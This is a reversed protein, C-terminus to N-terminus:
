ERAGKEKLYEKLRQRYNCHFIELWDVLSYKDVFHDQCKIQWEMTYRMNKHFAEHHIRCVPLVYGWRMSNNRNSGYIIEHLVVNSSKCFYCHELDDTFVSFRNEELVRRKATRKRM